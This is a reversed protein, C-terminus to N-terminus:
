RSRARRAGVTVRNARFIKTTKKKTSNKKKFVQLTFDRMARTYVRPSTYTIRVSECNNVDDANWISVAAFACESTGPAM